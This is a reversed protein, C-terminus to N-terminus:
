ASTVRRSRPRRVRRLGGLLAVGFCAALASASVAWGRGYGPPVFTFVVMHAGEPVPVARFLYNARYVPVPRGDVTCTWGPFWPDTLVLYGAPGDETRLVVRNPQYYEVRAPRGGGNLGPYPREGEVRHIGELLVRRRFDTAALARLAGPRDGPLPGAERVVFARPLVTRNEYLAYPALKQMGGAELDFVVPGPDVLVKTWGPQELPWDAPQLLYRVGLLDLLSRNRIHPLEGMVPYTLPDELPRLPRDEGGIFQLYEKYRLSDMPNYGRVAELGQLMALPAGAGLPTQGPHEPTSCDWVRGLEGRHEALYCVCAPPEYLSAEPRVQVLPLGLGWLDALLLLGWAARPWRAGSALRPLLRFAAPATVLLLPWYPAVTLPKGEVLVLRVAFGVTLLAVGAVLRGLVGRCRRLTEPAPAAFLADTAAGALFAVPLSAVLLMRSPVRFLRFGPCWQVVLSGGLAFAFLVLCVGAEYRWRGPALLVAWVAAALWLLGFGGRDEWQFQTPTATLAPGVLGILTRLGGQLTDLMGVGGGRSAFPAAELTPLLQVASLGAALVAVGTGCALWRAVPRWSFRGDGASTRAQDLAPGLTWLAVFLGSYLPWQPHLGLILLAFAFGAGTAWFLSGRRVARELFLLVLPLWALGLTITHGATLLHLMWKGAFMTGLAAVFAGARGLNRSTAYAYMGVGALLLHAVVLWSLFAGLWAEPLLPLLLHPPYFAAVQFDHVFPAGAFSFPCWLPREGTEHWSRVLFHRAPLHQALLDSYDSYLVDGPHVVLPAFFLLCLAALAATPALHTRV